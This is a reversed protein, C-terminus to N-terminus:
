YSAGLAVGDLLVDNARRTGGGADYDNAFAHHYPRTENTAPSATISPDLNALGYPNRGPIPAQDLLEKELVIETGASRFQVAVPAAEVVVREQVSGVSMSLDVTLNGRQQVRVNRQEAPRFGQLEAVVTYM